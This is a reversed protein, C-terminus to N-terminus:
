IRPTCLAHTLIKNNYFVAKLELVRKRGVGRVLADRDRFFRNTAFLFLSESVCLKVIIDILELPLNQVM